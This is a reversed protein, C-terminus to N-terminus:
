LGCVSRPPRPPLVPWPMAPCFPVVVFGKPLLKPLLEPDPKPLVEPEPKPLLGVEPKPLLEFLLPVPDFPFEPEVPLEPDFGLLGGAFGFGM